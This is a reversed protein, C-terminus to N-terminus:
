RESICVTMEERHVRCRQACRTLVVVQDESQTDRHLYESCLMRRKDMCVRAMNFGPWSRLVQLVTTLVRSFGHLWPLKHAGCM